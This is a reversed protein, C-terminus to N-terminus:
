RIAALADAAAKNKPDLELARTLEQRARVTQGAARLARGLGFASSTSRPYDSANMTLLGIAGIADNMKLMQYGIM